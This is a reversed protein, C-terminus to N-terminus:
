VSCGQAWFLELQGIFLKFGHHLIFEAYWATKYWLLCVEFCRQSVDAVSFGGRGERARM